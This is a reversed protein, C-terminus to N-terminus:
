KEVKEFCFEKAQLKQFDSSFRLTDGRLDPFLNFPANTDLTFHRNSFPLVYSSDNLEKDGSLMNNIYIIGFDNKSYSYTCNFSLLNYTQAIRPTNRVTLASDNVFEIFVCRNGNDSFKYKFGTYGQKDVHKFTQANRYTSCSLLCPILLLMLKKIM